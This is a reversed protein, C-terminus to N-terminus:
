RKTWIRTTPFVSARGDLDMQAEQETRYCYIVEYDNQPTRVIMANDKSDLNDYLQQAIDQSDYVGLVIYFETADWSISSASVEPILEISPFDPRATAADSSSPQSGLKINGSSNPPGGTPDNTPLSGDGPINGSPNTSPTPDNAPESSSGNIKRDEFTSGNLPSGNGGNINIGRRKERYKFVVEFEKFGNFDVVFDNQELVFNNSFVTKVSIKYRGSQPVFLIFEGRNDTLTSYTNGATDAGTIRLDALKITGESSYEDREVEVHGSIRNAKVFPVFLTTKSGIVINQEDGNINYLNGLKFLPTFDLKYSGEPIKYYNIEGFQDTIMELYEFKGLRTSSTDAHRDIEIIINDIGKENDDFSRNGNLDEYCVIKLDYYKVRPQQIEFAKRFGIDLYYTRNSVKGYESSVRSYLSLNNNIFFMWEKKLYFETRLNFNMRQTNRSSDYTYSNYSVLRINKKIYKEFYPLVTISKHFLGGNLYASQSSISYPGYYYYINVGWHKKRFNLGAQFNYFPKSNASTNLIPKGYASDAYQTIESFGMTVYPSILTTYEPRYHLRVNLRYSRTKLTDIRDMYYDYRARSLFEINPGIQLTIKRNFKAYLSAMYLNKTFSRKPQLLGFRYIAPDYSYRGYRVLLTYKRNFDYWVNAAMEQRGKYISQHHKSGFRSMFNFRLKNLIRGSYDLIFGVGNFTVGPDDTKVFATDNIRFTSDNYNHYVNSYGVLLRVNQNQLFSFNVGVAGGAINIKNYDDNIYSIGYELRNLTKGINIQHELTFGNLAYFLNRVIGAKIKNKGFTYSGKLGRGYASSEIGIVIDGFTVSLNEDKYTIMMRTYRWQQDAYQKGTKNNFSLLSYNNFNYSLERKKKLLITGWVGINLGLSRISLLNRATVSLNLPTVGRIMNRHKSKLFKFWLGYTEKKDATSATLRIDSGRWNHMEHGNEKPIYRVDFFISTDTNAPLLFNRVFVGDEAEAMELAEGVAFDLLILEDYNGNNEFVLEFKEFQVRKSLYVIRKPAFFRWKSVKPTTIYCTTSLLPKALDYDFTASVVYAVGGKVTRALVLRVPVYASEGPNISISKSDDSILNWNAPVRVKAVGSIRETTNNTLKLVNFYISDPSQFTKYKVFKIQINNTVGVVVPTQPAPNSDTIGTTDPSQALSIVSILM